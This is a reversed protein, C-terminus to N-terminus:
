HLSFAPRYRHAKFQVHFNAAEITAVTKGPCNATELGTLPATAGEQSPCSGAVRTAEYVLSNCYFQKGMM